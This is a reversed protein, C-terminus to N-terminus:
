AAMRDKRRGPVLLRPRPMVRPSVAAPAAALAGPTPSPVPAAPAAPADKRGDVYTAAVVTGVILAAGALGVPTLTEGLFLYAFLATFVPEGTLLLSVTTSTLRSLALSQLFFALCTSLLALFAIIGWAVPQVAAVNLAPEWLLACGLCLAFAVAIQTGAVTVADLEALAQKGFVLAGALAVSSALAMLEGPGVALSGGQSCLLYLGGAVGVQFPIVARPYRGREVLTSLFPAFVVPLAVLFGVNTATTLDLAVNCCLYSVAMCAAQPLWTRVRVKRLGRAMRRGFFLAFVVTALGFRVALCWLPTISEYAFKTVASGSGFIVVEILVFAVFPWRAQKWHSM